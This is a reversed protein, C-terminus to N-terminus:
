VAIPLELFSRHSRDHYLRIHATRADEGSEDAVVGGSNYNKQYYISNPCSVVLRIRSGKSVRRAFFQFRGFEYRNVVNSKVLEQNTLSKRHRARVTDNALAISSGDRKIEFLRVLFDTDPVDMAIWAVFRLFGAIEMDEAFPASHYVLGNGFLNLCYRQDTNYDKVEEGEIDAPRTDLPDYVYSDSSSMGPKDRRLFGSHFADNAEGHGSDLYLTLKKKSVTDLDDAYRWEEPGEMYYAVRKKLFEPRKGAKLTWDYWEKLLSNMDLRSADGFKVGGIEKPPDRTGGHDWPGVVLYHRARASPSAYRMHLMYHHLATRNCIDYHGTITLIPLNMSAYQNKSPVMADWFDNPTPHDLCRQFTPSPNGVVQDFERCPLHGLYLERLKEIWFRQDTSVRENDTVGSVMTLWQLAGLHWNPSTIEVTPCSSVVPVITELHSPSSSAVCWQSNGTYSGGWMGIKGNCWPQKSLWELIDHGDQADHEWPSFSGESNGRGRVDFVLFVYGHRAFYVAYRHWTDAVYPTTTFIAPTKRRLGKPKFLTANLRVGDRMPVKLGWEMDVETEQAKSAMKKPRTANASPMNEMEGLVRILFGPCTEKCAPRDIPV